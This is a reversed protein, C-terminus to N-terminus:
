KILHERVSSFFIQTYPLIQLNTSKSTTKTPCPQKHLRIHLSLRDSYSVRLIIMQRRSPLEHLLLYGTRALLSSFKDQPASFLRLTESCTKLRCFPIAAITSALIKVISYHMFLICSLTICEISFFHTIPFLRITCSRTKGCKPVHYCYM